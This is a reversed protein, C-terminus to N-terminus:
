IKVISTMHGDMGCRNATGVSSDRSGGSQSFLRYGQLECPPTITQLLLGYTAVTEFKRCAISIV